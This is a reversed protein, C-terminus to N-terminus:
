LGLTPVGSGRIPSRRAQSTSRRSAPREAILGTLADYVGPAILIPRRALRSRLTNETM